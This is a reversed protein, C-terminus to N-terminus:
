GCSAKLGFVAVDNHFFILISPLHATLKKFVVSLFVIYHLAIKSPWRDHFIFNHLAVPGSLIGTSGRSASSSLSHFQYSGLMIFHIIHTMNM